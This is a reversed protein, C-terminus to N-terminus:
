SKVAEWSGSTESEFMAEVVAMNALSDELPTPVEGQGRVALSFQDGQLTYQDCIEFEEIRVGGGFLDQGSDILIRTPRDPPANFPIEL